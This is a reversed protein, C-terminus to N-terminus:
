PQTCHVQLSKANSDLLTRSFLKQTFIYATTPPLQPKIYSSLLSFAPISATSVTPSDSPLLPLEPSSMKEISQLLSSINKTIKLTFILLKSYQVAPYDRWWGSADLDLDHGLDISLEVPWTLDPWTASGPWGSRKGLVPNESIAINWCTCEILPAFM